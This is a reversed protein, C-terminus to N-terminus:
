AEANRGDERERWEVSRWTGAPYRQGRVVVLGDSWREFELRPAVLVRGDTLEVRFEIDPLM